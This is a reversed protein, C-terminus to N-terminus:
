DLVLESETAKGAENLKGPGSFIGLPVGILMLGAVIVAEAPEQELAYLSSRYLMFLCSGCFLLPVVPYLPVRYSRKRKPERFRLVFLSCGTLFFFLWFVPATCAVLKSIGGSSHFDPNFQMNFYPAVIALLQRWEASMEVVGVLFLSFAAQAFLAGHAVHPKDGKGALWRFLRHDAGFTGYLRMGTFLLGNISGLSSIMVLGCIAQRGYQGFPLAFMDAAVTETRCVGQYGLAALYAINVSLYILTVIVTGLILSRPINKRPHKVESAIFAAENWGGYAYFVLVMMLAISIEVSSDAPQQGPQHLLLKAAVPSGNKGSTSTAVAYYAVPQNTKLNETSTILTWTSGTQIGIGLLTDSDPQLSPSNNSERYFTVENITGERESVDSAILTVQTGVIATKPAVDFSGIMPVPWPFYFFCIGILFIGGLGIFNAVTLSNQVIRGPRVGIANIFTLVLIAGMAYILRSKEGLSYFENAYNAFIYAMCAISGGTRIVSLEAWAFIFGVKSGYARTLYTYDGGATRYTSALEAYCLAGFLSVIGGGAWGWMGLNASGRELLYRPSLPLDLGWHHHRHDLM